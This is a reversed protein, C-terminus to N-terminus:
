GGRAGGAADGWVLAQFAADGSGDQLHHAQKPHPPHRAGEGFLNSESTTESAASHSTSTSSEDAFTGTPTTFWAHALIQAIGLRKTPDQQIINKILDRAEISLWEPDEFEGVIIKQRMLNEDDDDFPLTGTLLCYLIIGLSWIDVEPGLYKRGQLMEPSAWLHNTAAWVSLPELRPEDPSGSCGVQISTVSANNPTTLPIPPITGLARSSMVKLGHFSSFNSRITHFLLPTAVFPLLFVTLQSQPLEIFKNRYRASLCDIITSQPPPKSWPITSQTSASM